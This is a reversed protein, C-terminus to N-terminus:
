DWGRCGCYYSDADREPHHRFFALRSSSPVPPRNCSGCKAVRGTLDPAEVVRDAGDVIGYCIVCVPKGDKVANATHGCAMTSNDVLTSV